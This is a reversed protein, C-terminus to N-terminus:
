RQHEHRARRRRWEAIVYLRWLGLAIFYASVSTVTALVSLGVILPKGVAVFTESWTLAISSAHEAAEALAAQARPSDDGVLTSGLRYAFFYVPAFTFPNTVLTSAVAVLINARLWVAVAAAIPIQALPILLGFFLGIALGLAVGHRNIHWLRPHHLAPGLWGVWRNGRVTEAHPLWGRLRARWGRRGRPSRHKDSRSTNRM